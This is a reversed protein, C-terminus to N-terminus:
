SMQIITGGEHHIDSGSERERGTRERELYCDQCFSPWIFSEAEAQGAGVVVCM